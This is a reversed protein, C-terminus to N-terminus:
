SKLRPNLYYECHLHGETECVEHLWRGGLVMRDLYAGCVTMERHSDIRTYNLFPCVIALHKELLDDPGLGDIIQRIRTSDLKVDGIYRVFDVKARNLDEMLKRHKSHLLALLPCGQTHSNRKLAASLEVLAQCDRIPMKGLRVVIIGPKEDTAKDLCQLPSSVWEEEPSSLEGVNDTTDCLLVRLAQAPHKDTSAIRERM